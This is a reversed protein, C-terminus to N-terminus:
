SALRNPTCEAMGATRASRSQGFATNRGGSKEVCQGGLQRRNEKALFLSSFDRFGLDSGSRSFRNSGDSEPDASTSASLARAFFGGLAITLLSRALM